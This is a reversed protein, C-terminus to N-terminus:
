LFCSSFSMFGLLDPKLYFFPGNLLDFSHLKWSELFSMKPRYDTINEQNKCWFHITPERPKLSHGCDILKLWYYFLTYGQLGRQIHHKKKKEAHDNCPSTLMILIKPLRLLAKTNTETCSSLGSCIETTAARPSENVTLFYVPVPPFSPVAPYILVKLPYRLLKYWLVEKVMIIIIKNNQKTQIRTKWNETLM